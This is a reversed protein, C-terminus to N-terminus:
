RPGAPLTESLYRTLLEYLHRTTGSGEYIGHSRNPYAMMTFPKNLEILRNILRETGQYHVNDDGTGHVILLDGELGEAHTIPSGADYGAANDQPLGMYREQYITDYLRQDPVPAVAMGMSFVDPYKFLSNLTQSGGGSWGWIGIRDADVYAYTEALARAAAAMDASAHVGIQGYVVKRWDRGRPSPTGRPDASAVIYGQQTLFLHWLYTGGGWSDNVTLGWPEGYVHMLVPYQRSEDFDPPLMLYADLPTGDEAPLTTFFARGRDLAEVTARLDDNAALVRVTEHGPLRVIETRSPDGFRSWTHVAFGAGPALRYSHTGPQDAPTLSETASGDLRSRFLARGLTSGEPAGSYYVWGGDTDIELVSLVDHGAPTIPTLSSGDRSAVYVRKWGDRDSIWTFRAGDDFWVLDSVADTWADDTEVLIPAAEMTRVDALLVENRQQLRDLHQIVLADSGAAWEMRAPYHNREDDSLRFWRTPGGAALVVGIRAASNTTGAKPYQVPITYSYLSDTNNIMLFDRIGSADLQWYAIHRGDPSWRFGDRLGFEEEYVWDFTGNITTESGNTTLPTIAGTAVDEVYLDHESVYAVRTGDPSFKAFMLSSEPADGGLQRPPGGDLDLVWYDGRTNARWVRQSNTYLLVRREDESWTVSEVPLPEDWGEPVMRSAPVLVERAETEVGVRVLDRGGDSAAEFRTLSTGDAWRIAGASEGRFDSSAFLRELSLQSADTQAALPAVLLLGAVLLSLRRYM